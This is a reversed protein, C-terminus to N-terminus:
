DACRLLGEIETYTRVVHRAHRLKAAPLTNTIAIVDMGAAVAAEVGFASDEIVWCDAPPVALLEASRLFVDPAPKPRAVDQVSVVVPFYRRLNQMALVEDIVSHMSGSAVALRYRGHLQELLRPLGSFIPEAEKVLELFRSQKWAVLEEFSQSPRHKAVFDHWLAKDSRGYYAAFDMGHSEGYGLVQFVDRFAQEHLPESDVIVGDMDFIVARYNSSKM